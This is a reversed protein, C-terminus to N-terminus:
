PPTLADNSAGERAALDALGAPNRGTQDGRESQERRCAPETRQLSGSRAIKETATSFVRM